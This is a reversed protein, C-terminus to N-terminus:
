QDEDTYGRGTSIYNNFVGNNVPAPLVNLVNKAVASFRSSPIQNNPFPTRTIAGSATIVNSAPDYIPTSSRSFDGNRFDNPLLSALTNPAGQRFRYGGYVFFFFTRNRGNYLKPIVVPGGLSFGYENQRNVPVQPLFFGRADLANNRLIDFAAGHLSNNGSRTSFIEIGGGTRGYEANFNARLLRFEGITEVSPRASGPITGGSEIGTSAIGDVLVEKGRSPSGSIQTNTTDGTVGPTILTFQELDRPKGSVYLPLQLLKSRDITAGLDSTATQLTSVDGSVNITQEVQGVEMRADVTVTQAVELRFASHVYRRFGKAEISIQYDGVTLEPLVYNGATNTVTPYSVGTGMNKGAIAAGAISAGTADTVRGTITGLTTQAKSLCCVAPVLALLFIIKM